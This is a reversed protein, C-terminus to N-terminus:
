SGSYQKGQWTNRERFLDHIMELTERKELSWAPAVLENPHPDGTLRQIIMTEPLREIFACVRDVYERQELCHYRGDRYLAELATGRVVYLLHLKLGDIGMDAIIDATDLMDRRSEGPLGLIVHACINIGRHRTAAVAKEFCAFDHGRNILALTRDHASQLGYEIWILRSRAYEELLDLVDGTVCDPRTGIALGVVGEVALAEDYIAKLRDFPAYTNTFSQFYAMLRNTKFRRAIRTKSREIQQGISIGQQHAGTGSGRANCYICGGTSLTGDRNPCSLGADVTVKHVRGGFLGRFYTNLDRYPKEPMM